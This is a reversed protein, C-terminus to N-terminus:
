PAKPLVQWGATHTWLFDRLCLIAVDTFPGARLAAALRPFRNLAEASSPSAIRTRQPGRGYIVLHSEDVDHPQRYDRLKREVAALMEEDSTGIGGNMLSPWEWDSYFNVGYVEIHSLHRGILPATQDIRLTCWDGRPPLDGQMHLLQAIAECFREYDRPPPMRYNRFHLRVGFRNLNAHRARFESTHDILADWAADVERGRRNGYSVVEVGIRGGVVFDPHEGEAILGEIGRRRIYETVYFREEDKQITRTM